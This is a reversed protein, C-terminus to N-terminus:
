LTLAPHNSDCTRFRCRAGDEVFDLTENCNAAELLAFDYRGTMVFRWFVGIVRLAFLLTEQRFEKRPPEGTPRLQRTTQKCELQRLLGPAYARGAGGYRM